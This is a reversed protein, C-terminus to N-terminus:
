KKRGVNWFIATCRPRSWGRFNLEHPRRDWNMGSIGIQSDLSWLLEIPTLDPSRQVNGRRGLQPKKRRKNGTGNRLDTPRSRRRTIVRQNITTWWTV